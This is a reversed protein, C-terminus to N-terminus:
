FHDVIELQTEQKGAPDTLLFWFQEIVKGRIIELDLKVGKREDGPCDLLNVPAFYTLLDFDFFTRIGPIVTGRITGRM